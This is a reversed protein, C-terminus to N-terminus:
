RKKHINRFFFNWKFIKRFGFVGIDGLIIFMKSNRKILSEITKVLQKRM